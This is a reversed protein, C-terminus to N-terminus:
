RENGAPTRLPFRRGGPRVPNNSWLRVGIRGPCVAGRPFGKIQVPWLIGSIADLAFRMETALHRIKGLTMPPFCTTM